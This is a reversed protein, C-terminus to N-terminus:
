NKVEKELIHVEADIAVIAGKLNSSFNDFYLKVRLIPIVGPETFM